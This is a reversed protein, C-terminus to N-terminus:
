KVRITFFVSKDDYGADADIIAKYTDKITRIAKLAQLDDDFDVDFSLGFQSARGSQTEDPYVLKASVSNYGDLNSLQEKVKKMSAKLTPVVKEMADIEFSATDDKSEETLRAKVAEEVMKALERKTIRM